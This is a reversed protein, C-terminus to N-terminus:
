VAEMFDEELKKLVFSNRNGQLEKINQERLIASKVAHEKDKKTLRKKIEKQWLKLFGRIEEIGPEEDYYSRNQRITGGPEFEITYFPINKEQQRRLFGIYTERNEIRNFYRKSSGACHHLAYGEQVIEVLKEPIIMMYGDAAFEYKDKIEKLIAAAGPFEEEMRKAEQQRLEPDDNMRQVIELKRMDEILEDHRQKIDKPKYFLENDLNKDLAVCMSLYDAWQTLVEDPTENNKETQKWIYNTIQEISMKSVIGGPLEEIKNAGIRNEELYEMTRKPVKTKHKESYRMWGLMINGGNEERIRNIKQKDKLGMVEEINKGDANLTGVYSGNYAWCQQAAEQCLRYFRGKALYEMMTGFEKKRAATAMIANYDTKLQKGAMEAFAHTLSEYRTEKLAEKIEEPYLYCIGTRRNKPNHTYWSSRKLGTYWSYVDGEQNYFIMYTKEECGKKYLLIRVGEDLIVTHGEKHYDIEAKFHRAVGFKPDPRELKCVMTKVTIIKKRKKVTAKKGCVPCIRIEENKPKELEKEPIKSGCNSCGYTKTDKDWFLYCEKTLTEYLWKKLAENKDQINEMLKDIKRYKNMLRLDRKTRSYQDELEEIAALPNRKSNLKEKAIREDLETGWKFEELIRYSYFSEWMPNYGMARILKQTTWKEEAADFFNHKGTGTDIVYRGIYGKKRFLDLILYEKEAQVTATLNDGENEPVQIPLSEITKRKM